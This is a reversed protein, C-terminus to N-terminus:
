RSSVAARLPARAKGAVRLPHVSCRRLVFRLFELAILVVLIAAFLILELFFVLGHMQEAFEQVPACFVFLFPIPVFEIIEIIPSIREFNEKFFILYELKKRPINESVFCKFM